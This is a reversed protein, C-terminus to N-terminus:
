SHQDHNTHLCRDEEIKAELIAIATPVDPSFHISSGKRLLSMYMIIDLNGRSETVRLQDIPHMAVAFSRLVSDDPTSGNLASRLYYSNDVESGFLTFNGPMEPHSLYLLLRLRAIVNINCKDDQLYVLGAYIADRLNERIHTKDERTVNRLMSLTSQREDTQSGALDSDKLEPAEQNTDQSILASKGLMKKVVDVILEDPLNRESREYEHKTTSYHGLPGDDVNQGLSM